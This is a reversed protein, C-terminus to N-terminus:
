GQAEPHSKLLDRIDDPNAKLLAVLPLLEAKVRTREHRDKEPVRQEAILKATLYRSLDALTDACKGVQDWSRKVRAGRLYEAAAQCSTAMNLELLVDTLREASFQDTWLM